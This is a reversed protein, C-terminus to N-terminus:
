MAKSSHRDERLSVRLSNSIRELIAKLDSIVNSKRRNQSELPCNEERPSCIVSAKGSM